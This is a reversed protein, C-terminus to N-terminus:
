LKSMNLSIIKDHPTIYSILPFYIAESNKGDKLNLESKIIKKIREYQKLEEERELSIKKM